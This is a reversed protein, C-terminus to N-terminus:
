NKLKNDTELIRSLLLHYKCIELTTGSVQEIQVSFHDLSQCLDFSYFSLSLDYVNCHSFNFSQKAYKTKM